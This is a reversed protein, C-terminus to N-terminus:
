IVPERDVGIVEPKLYEGLVYNKNQPKPYPLVGYAMKVKWEKKLKKSNTCFYVYRHKPTRVKRLGNQSDEKYHRSHKNGETYKDTRKKTCGTYIFNCAQYIYGGHNAGTDAYSVVIWDNNKLRRLCAGLFQSLPENLGDIRCLRNLEYVNETYDGNMIGKCLFPSAPKGFSCVAVLQNHIFWGYATSIVPKRGSYHKPLLFSVAESYSINKINGKMKDIKERNAKKQICSGMKERLYALLVQHNWKRGTARFDSSKISM